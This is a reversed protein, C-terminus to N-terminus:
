NYFAITKHLRKYFFKHQHTELWVTFQLNIKLKLITHTHTHTYLYPQNLPTEHSITWTYTYAYSETELIVYQFQCDTRRHCKESRDATLFRSAGSYFKWFYYFRYAQSSPMLFWLWISQSWGCSLNAPRFYKSTIFLSYECECPRNLFKVHGTPFNPTWKFKLLQNFRMKQLYM